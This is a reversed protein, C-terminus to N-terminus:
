HIVDHHHWILKTQYRCLFCCICCVISLLQMLSPPSPLYHTRPVLCIPTPCIAQDWKLLPHGISHAECLFPRHLSLLSVTSWHGSGARLGSSCSMMMVDDGHRRVYFQCFRVIWDKITKIWVSLMYLNNHLMNLPLNQKLFHWPFYLTRICHTTCTSATCQRVISCPM